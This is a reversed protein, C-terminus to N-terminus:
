GDRATGQWTAALAGAALTVVLMATVAPVPTGDFAAAAISGITAPVVSQVVGLASSAAGVMTGHPALALTMSNSVIPGFALFFGAFGPLMTWPGTGGALWLCLSTALAGAGVVAGLAILRVLPLRRVLRANVLNGVAACLAIAAFAIGFQGPTLDFTTMFVASVNALYVVLGSLALTGIAGFRRSQPHRLVRLWAAAIRGPHLAEPQPRALTERVLTAAILLLVLGYGALFLFIGRWSTVQLILAGISPAIIPAIIFAAMAFSMLQAMQAGHFLDRIIARGLVPGAGAGFGQVLRMALLTAADGAAACALSAAVFVAIGAILVPRRGFRDSTPGYVAQGFAFGVFFITVTLGIQAPPAGLDAATAPIAPLNVDITMASMTMLGAVLLVFAPSGPEIPRM